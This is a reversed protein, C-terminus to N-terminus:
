FDFSFYVNNIVEFPCMTLEPKNLLNVLCQNNTVMQIVERECNMLYTMCTPLRLETNPWITNILYIASLMGTNSFIIKTFIAIFFVNAKKRRNM